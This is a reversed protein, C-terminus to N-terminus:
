ESQAESSRARAVLTTACTRSSSVDLHRRRCSLTKRLFSGRRGVQRGRREPEVERRPTRHQIGDEGFGTRFIHEMASRLAQEAVRVDIVEVREKIEDAITRLEAIDSRVASVQAAIRKVEAYTAASLALTGVSVLLNVAGLGAALGPLDIPALVDGPEGAPFYGIGAPNLIPGNRGMVQYAFRASQGPGIKFFPVM